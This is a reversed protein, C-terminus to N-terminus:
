QDGFFSISIRDYDTLVSSVNYNRFRFASTTRATASDDLALGGGMASAAYNISSFATTFNVTYDGVGNDTLSAVNYSVRIAITGTGNFYVWAKAVGPSFKVKDPQVMTGAAEAEMNAQTSADAVATMADTVSWGSIPATFEVCLRITGSTVAFFASGQTGSGTGTINYTFLRFRTADYPVVFIEYNSSGDSIISQGSRFYRALSLGSPAATVFETKTADFSMSNPLTYLYDGTGAASGASATHEYEYRVMMSDGRRAWWVKDRVRTTPKTPATTVAGITMEGADAWNTDTTRALGPAQFVAGVTWGSIPATFEISFRLTAINLNFSTASQYLGNPGAIGTNYLRFRTADYPVVTVHFVNSADTIYTQVAGRVYRALAVSTIAGTYFETKTADFSRGDPLTYLYDGTGAASGAAATHEYEYRVLMSDGRRAWWVKDRVRTTPKTPPTTVAGITMEGADVWDTDLNRLLGNSAVVEWAVPATAKTLKIIYSDGPYVRLTQAAGITNGSGADITFHVASSRVSRVLVWAEPDDNGTFSTPLTLNIVTAATVRYASNLALASSTSVVNETKGVRGLTQDQVYTRLTALTIKNLTGGSARRIPLADTDGTAPAGGVTLATLLDIRSAINSEQWNATWTGPTGAVTCVWITEDVDAVIDGAEWALTTPAGAAARPVLNIGNHFPTTV